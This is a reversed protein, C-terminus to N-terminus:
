LEKNPTGKPGLTKPIEKNQALFAIGQVMM